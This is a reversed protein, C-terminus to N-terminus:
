ASRALGAAFEACRALADPPGLIERLERSAALQASPDRLLPELAAALGAPTADDQLVEPIAARGLLL